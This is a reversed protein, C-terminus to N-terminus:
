DMSALLAMFMKRTNEDMTGKIYEMMIGNLKQTRRIVKDQENLKKTLATLADVRDDLCLNGEEIENEAESVEGSVMEEESSIAPSAKEKNVKEVNAQTLTSKMTKIVQVCYDEGLLEKFYVDKMMNNISSRLKNYAQLSRWTQPTKMLWEQPREILSDLYSKLTQDDQFGMLTYSDYLKEGYETGNVRPQLWAKANSLTVDM